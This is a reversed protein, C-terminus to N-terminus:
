TALKINQHQKAATAATIDKSPTAATKQQSAKALVELPVGYLEALKIADRLFINVEGRELRCITSQEVRLAKAVSEQKLEANVRLDRLTLEQM